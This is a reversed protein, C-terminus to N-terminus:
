DRSTIRERAITTRALREQIPEVGLGPGSPVALRGDRLTFPETIDGGPGFFRESAACDGIRTFGPLAAVALLAARGIGTELMGGALAPISAAVCADHVRRAGRIGLRGVKVALADCAGRRILERAVRASTVSEDLCIATRVEEVLAAHDAMADPACPQEVCQLGLEDIAGFLDRAGELDYSGNADAALEVGIGLEARAARVLEVDHGPEIKCKIRRYGAAAYAQVTARLASVDPKLGAAVGAAVSDGAGLWERLSTGDARLQADLLACELAARAARNGPVDDFPAGAFARPLLHDRLAARAGDITEGDYEPSSHAACEGWGTGADTQVRVLLADKTATTNRATRFPEVLPLRVRLLEVERLAHRMADSRVRSVARAM